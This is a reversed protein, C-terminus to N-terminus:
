YSTVASIPGLEEDEAEDLGKALRTIRRIEDRLRKEEAKQRSYSMAEHKSAVSSTSTSWAFVRWRVAARSTAALYRLPMLGELGKASKRSSFIGESYSDLLVKL